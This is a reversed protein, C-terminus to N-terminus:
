PHFYRFPPVEMWACIALYNEATVRKGHEVRSLQSKSIGTDNEVDRLTIEGEERFSRLQKGLREWNIKMHM